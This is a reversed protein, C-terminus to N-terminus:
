AKRWRSRRGTRLRWGCRPCRSPKAVRAVWMHQCAPRPCTVRVMGDQVGPQTGDGTAPGRYITLSQSGDYDGAYDGEDRWPESVIELREGEDEIWTRIIVRAADGRIEVEAARMVVSRGSTGPVKVIFM